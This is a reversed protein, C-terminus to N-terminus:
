ARATVVRDESRDEPYQLTNVTLINLTLIYTRLLFIVINEDAALPIVWSERGVYRDGPRDEPNDTRLM